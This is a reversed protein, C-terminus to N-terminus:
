QYFYAYFPMFDKIFSLNENVNKMNFLDVLWWNTLSFKFKCHIPFSQAFSYFLSFVIYIRKSPGGGLRSTVDITSSM